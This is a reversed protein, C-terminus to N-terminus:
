LFLSRLFYWTKGPSASSRELSKKSQASSGLEYGELAAKILGRIHGPSYFIVEFTTSPPVLRFFSCLRVLVPVLTTFHDWFAFSAISHTRVGSVRASKRVQNVFLMTLFRYLVFVKDNKRWRFIVLVFREFAAEAAQCRSEHCLEHCRALQYRTSLRCVTDGRSKTTRKHYFHSAKQRWLIWCTM